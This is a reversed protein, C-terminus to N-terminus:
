GVQPEAATAPADETASSAASTVIMNPHAAVGAEQALVSCWARAYARAVLVSGTAWTPAEARALDAATLQIPKWVGAGNACRYARGSRHLWAAVPSEAPEVHVWVRGRVSLEEASRERAVKGAAWRGAAEAAGLLQSWDCEDVVPGGLMVEDSM